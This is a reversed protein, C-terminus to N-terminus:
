CDKHKRCQFLDAIHITRPKKCVSCLIDVITGAPKEPDQRYTGTIAWPYKISLQKQKEPNSYVPLNGTPKQKITEVKSTVKLKTPKLLKAEERRKKSVEKLIEKTEESMPKHKGYKTKLEEEIRKRELRNLADELLEVQILKERGKACGYVKIIKNNEDIDIIGIKTDM